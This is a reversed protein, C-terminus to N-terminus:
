RCVNLLSDVRKVPIFLATDTFRNYIYTAIQAAELNTLYPNPPMEQNFLQGNVMIEGKVGNKIICITREVDELMFDSDVLPPYLQGLGSGDPQHCNSCNEQYLIKGNAIYQRMKIRDERAPISKGSDHACNSLLAAIAILLMIKLRNLFLLSRCIPPRLKDIM